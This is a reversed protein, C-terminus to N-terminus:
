PVPPLVTLRSPEIYFLGAAISVALPVLKGITLTNVVWTSQRIGRVNVWALAGTIVLL